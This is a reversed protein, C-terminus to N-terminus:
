KSLTLLELAYDLPLVHKTGLNPQQYTHFHLHPGTSKGSNGTKGIVEGAKITEGIKSKGKYQESLHGLVIGKGNYEVLVYHGYGGPNELNGRFIVDKKFTIKTGIPTGVDFGGHYDGGNRIFGSTITYGSIALPFRNQQEIITEVSLGTKKVALLLQSSPVNITSTKGPTSVKQGTTVTETNESTETPM